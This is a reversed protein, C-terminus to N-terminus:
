ERFRVIMNMIRTVEARAFCFALRRARFYVLSFLGYPGSFLPITLDPPTDPLILMLTPLIIRDRRLCPLAKRRPIVRPVLVLPAKEM